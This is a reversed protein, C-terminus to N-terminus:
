TSTKSLSVSTFEWIRLLQAQALGAITLGAVFPVLAKIPLSMEREGKSM